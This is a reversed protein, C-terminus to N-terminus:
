RGCCKKYKKGSGCPCPDNRGVKNPPRTIPTAPAKRVFDITEISPIRFTFLTKNNLNTVAFDGKSIIDMGILVEANGAIEGEIVRLQPFVVRNPLFISALYVQTLSEGSATHVKAVGIPKLGCDDVVKRTIVTGTAGTDWIATFKKSEPPKATSSPNFAKGVLAENQLVNSIGNYSTTFAVFRTQM